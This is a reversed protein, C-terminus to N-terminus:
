SRMALALRKSAYEWNMVEWLKNLYEMKETKYQLYYAHEWLDINLLPVGSRHMPFDQNMTTCLGLEKSERCYGLWIWGSGRILPVKKDIEEKLGDLSGFKKEILGQLEASCVNGEDKTKHPSQSNWFLTHNVHGGLNFLLAKEDECTPSEPLKKIGLKKMGDNYRTVYGQHLKTHHLVMVEENIQPKLADYAYPLEPLTFSSPLDCLFETFSAPLEQM